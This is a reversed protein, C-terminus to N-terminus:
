TTQEIEPLLTEVLPGGPVATHPLARQMFEEIPPMPLAASEQLALDFIGAVETMSPRDDPNKLIMRDVMLALAPYLRPELSSLLPASQLSHSMLVQRADGDFPLRGTFFEFLVVGFAYVDSKATIPATNRIQEPPMYAPTGFPSWDESRVEPSEPLLFRALGFDVVRVDFRARQSEHSILINAPKLDCHILGRAHLEALARTVRGLTALIPPWSPTEHLIAFASPSLSQGGLLEMIIYPVGDPLLGVDYLAPVSPHAAAALAEAESRMMNLARDLGGLARSVKIAARRSFISHQALHVDSSGSAGLKEALRYQGVLTGADRKSRRTSRLTAHELVTRLEDCIHQWADDRRRWRIVPVRNRPLLQLPELPLTELNSVPRLLIPIM